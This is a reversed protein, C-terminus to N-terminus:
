ARSFSTSSLGSITSIITLVGQKSLLIRLGRIFDHLDPVHALVNNGIVLNAHGYEEVIRRAAQPDMHAAFALQHLRLWIFRRLM